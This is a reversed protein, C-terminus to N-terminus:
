TSGGKEGWNIRILFNILHFCSSCTLINVKTEGGQSFEMDSRLEILYTWGEFTQGDKILQQMDSLLKHEHSYRWRANVYQEAACISHSRKTSYQVYHWNDICCPLRLVVYSFTMRLYPSGAERRTPTLSLASTKLSYDLSTSTLCFKNLFNSHGKLGCNVRVRGALRSNLM